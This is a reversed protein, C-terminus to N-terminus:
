QKLGKSVLCERLNHLGRYVLNEARKSGWGLLKGIEPVTHEQLYLTVALRRPRVLTSLCDRIATGIESSHSAREPDVTGGEMRSSEAQDELPVEGKRRRARIEDVMVSYAVRWLYSSGYKGNGEDKKQKKMLRILAKQVLDDSEDALWRPCVKRVALSLRRRLTDYEDGPQEVSQDATRAEWGTGDPDSSSFM